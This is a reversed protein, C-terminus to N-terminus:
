LIVEKKITNELEKLVDKDEKKLKNELEASYFPVDEKYKDFMILMFRAMNWIKNAFNRFAIVKDAPFNFDKGNATGSILGMRLADTGFEAQYEEPNIVNGLSKSMKRGDLARVIGHLYVDKFPPKGTLYIGFMIMRSVWLRLIEWGTELVDTPDFYKFDNSEPYGLTVLPWQGSSFWTDFTDPDQILENNGCKPCKKPKEASAIIEGCGIVDKNALDPNMLKQLASLHETGCYWIPIQHGWWLQRSICWDRINEMWNFYIKEFYEPVIKIKGKKVVEIADKALPKTKVWWQLSVQPELTVKCRECHGVSHVYDQIKEIQSLKGFHKPQEQVIDIKQRWNEEKSELFIENYTQSRQYMKM